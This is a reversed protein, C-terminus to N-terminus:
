TPNSLRAAAAQTFLLVISTSPNFEYWTNQSGDVTWSRPGWADDTDRLYVARGMTHGSGIGLRALYNGAQRDRWWQVTGNSSFLVNTFVSAGLVALLVM